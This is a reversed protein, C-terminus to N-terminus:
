KEKYLPFKVVFKTGNSNNSECYINGKFKNVQNKVIWLGLGSGEKKTTVFPEFINAKINDDIGKGTDTFELQVFDNNKYANITLTGGKEVMSELANIVINIFIFKLSNSNALTYIDEEDYERIVKIKNKYFNNKELILIQEIIPKISIKSIDDSNKNSFALLSYITSEANKISERLEALVERIEDINIDNETEIENLLYYVGKIVSINNKLEHTVSATVQGILAFKESNSLELNKLIENTKDISYIILERITGDINFIPFSGINYIKGNNHVECQCEKKNNISNEGPCNECIDIKNFFLEYCKKTELENEKGKISKKGKSNLMLVNFNLDRIYLVGPMNDFITQFQNNKYFLDSIYNDLEKKLDKFAYDLIKIEDNDNNTEFNHIYKKGMDQIDDVLKFLPKSLSNYFYILLFMILLVSFLILTWTNDNFIINDEIYEKSDVQIGIIWDLGEIKNYILLKEGRDIDNKGYLKMGEKEILMEDYVERENENSAFNQINDNVVLGKESEKIEYGPYYILHGENDVIFSIGTGEISLDSISEKLKDLGIDMCIVGIMSDGKYIPYSCTIVLGRGLYDIYPNTWVINRDPNNKEDAMFYYVDNKFNHGYEFNNVNNYNSPYIRIMDYNTIVYVWQAYPMRDISKKFYKELYSTNIIDKINDQKLADYYSFFVNSSDEKNVKNTLVNNENVYYDNYFNELDKQSIEQNLLEDVWMGLDEVENEVQNFLGEIRIQKEKILKELSAEAFSRNGERIKPYFFINIFAILIVEFVILTILIRKMIGRNFLKFL